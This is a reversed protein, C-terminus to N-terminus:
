QKDRWALARHMIHPRARIACLMQSEQIAELTERCLQDDKVM